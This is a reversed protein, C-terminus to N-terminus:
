TYVYLLPELSEEIWKIKNLMRPTHKNNNNPMTAAAETSKKHVEM